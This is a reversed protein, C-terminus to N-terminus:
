KASKMIMEIEKEMSEMGRIRNHIIIVQGGRAFEHEIAHAIMSENWKTVITEIPKKRAPPTALISIKKLGSLALNLSRPIPTASLSLIDLNAKIKKIKEKHSVGFKHEEDIVLLGLRKWSVDDSILRHTGVVVDITGSRIGELTYETERPTNMRTMVGVRIGFAGLREVFTEYHEDALVLLPSLVAVQTGSLVAKYIANMAVETKGFGVDGSVLRDMPSESEMDAFIEDIASKQDLTYTYAFAAQFKKEELPFAGFARGKALTRRASTELIDAAIAEIEEDTKAM